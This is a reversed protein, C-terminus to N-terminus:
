HLSCGHNCINSAVNNIITFIKHLASQSLGKLKICITNPHEQWCSKWFINFYFEFIAFGEVHGIGALNQIVQDVFFVSIRLILSDGVGFVKVVFDGFLHCDSKFDIAWIFSHENRSSFILFFSLLQIDLLM